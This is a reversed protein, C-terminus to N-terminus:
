QNNKLYIYAEKRFHLTEKTVIKVPMRIIVNAMNIAEDNRGLRGYLRMLWIRSKMNMPLMDSILKLDHEADNYQGTKVYCLTRLFLAGPNSTYKLAKDIDNIAHTYNKNRMMVQAKTMYYLESTGIGDALEELVDVNVSINKKLEDCFMTLRAQNYIARVQNYTVLCVMFAMIVHFVHGVGAGVAKGKMNLRAGYCLLLIWPQISSYMFNFLSMVAFAVVVALAEIDKDRYAKFIMIAYFAFFFLGGIVGGEITQELYDNYAMSVFSANRRETQLAEGSAFYEAQRLNYNREFLGYGYGHPQESVMQASLKWILMRGDASDKKLHYTYVSGAVLLFILVICTAIKSNVSLDLFRKRLHTSMLCYVGFIVTLGVWATRCRIALLLIAIALGLIVYITRGKRESIRSYIIPIVGIMYMATINPNENFGTISFYESSSDILGLAQGTASVIHLCAILLLGNCIQRSSILGIRLLGSMAFFFVIGSLMYYMRYTEAPVFLGYIVIYIGWRTMFVSMLTITSKRVCIMMSCIALVLSCLSFALSKSLSPYVFLHTDVTCLICLLTFVVAIVNRIISRVNM